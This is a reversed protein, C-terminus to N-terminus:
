PAMQVLKELLSFDRALDGKYVFKNAGAKIFNKEHFGASLGVIFANPCDHRIVRCVEDGTIKPMNYDILILDFEQHQSLKIAELCDDCFTVKCGYEKIFGLIAGSFLQDDDIILVTEQTQTM